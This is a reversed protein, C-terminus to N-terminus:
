VLPAEMWHKMRAHDYDMSEYIGDSESRNKKVERICLQYIRRVMEEYTRYKASDKAARIQNNQKKKKAM